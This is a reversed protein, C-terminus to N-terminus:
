LACYLMVSYVKCSALAEHIQVSLPSSAPGSQWRCSVRGATCGARDTLALALMEYKAAHEALEEPSPVGDLLSYYSHTLLAVYM